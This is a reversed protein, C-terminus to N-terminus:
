GVNSDDRAAFEHYATAMMQTRNRQSVYRYCGRVMIHMACFKMAM